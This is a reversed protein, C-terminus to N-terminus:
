TVIDLFCLGDRMKRPVEMSLLIGFQSLEFLISSSIMSTGIIKTRIKDTKILLAALFNLVDLVAGRITEIRTNITKTTAVRPTMRTCASSIAVPIKRAM